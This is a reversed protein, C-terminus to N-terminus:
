TFLVPPDGTEDEQPLPWGLTRCLANGFRDAASINHVISSEAEFALSVAGLEFRWLTRTWRDGEGGGAALTTAVHATVPDLGVINVTARIHETRIRNVDEEFPEFDIVYVANARESVGVIRPAETRSEQIVAVVTDHPFTRRCAGTMATIARQTGQRVEHLRLPDASIREAANGWTLALASAAQEDM